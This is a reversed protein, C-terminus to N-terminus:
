WFSQYKNLYGIAKALEKYKHTPSEGCELHNIQSSTVFSIVAFLLFIDAIKM